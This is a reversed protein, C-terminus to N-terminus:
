YIFPILKKTKMRYNSFQNTYRSALYSDLKPINYFVFFCLLFLPISISYLNRTILAFGSVWLLDGFYNIHMAYTFLGKTYLKGNNEPKQKWFHRQLESYSNFYSGLLFILVALYDIIGLPENATVIFISFGIYYLAFALPVSFAEEMPIRRKLLFLMMFSMRFFIILCFTYSLYKRTLFVTENKIGFWGKLLDRSEGFLICYALLLLVIQLGIIIIKQPISKDYTGYLEM